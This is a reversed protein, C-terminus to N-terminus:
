SGKGVGPASGLAKGNFVVAGLRKGFQAATQEAAQRWVGQAEADLAFSAATVHVAQDQESVLVSPTSNVVTALHRRPVAGGAPGPLAAEDPDSDVAGPSTSGTAGLSPAQVDGEANSLALRAPAEPRDETGPSAPAVAASGLGGFALPVAFLSTGQALPEPPPAALGLPRNSAGDRLSSAATLGFMGLGDFPDAVQPRAPAAGTPISPGAAAVATAAGAAMAMDFAQPAPAAGPPSRPAPAIRAANMPLASGIRM